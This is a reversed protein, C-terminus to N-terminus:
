KLLSDSIKRIKNKKKLPPSAISTSSGAVCFRCVVSILYTRWATKTLLKNLSIYFKRIPRTEPISIEEGGFILGRSSFGAEWPGYRVQFEAWESIRYKPMKKPFFFVDIKIKKQLNMRAIIVASMVDNEYVWQTITMPAFEVIVHYTQTQLQTQWKLKLKM